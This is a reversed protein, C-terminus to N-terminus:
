LAEGRLPLPAPGGERTPRENRIEAPLQIRFTTGQGLSSEFTLRGGHGEVIAKTIALGLGMGPIGDANSSRFFRDFLLQQDGEPIGLGSDAVEIEVGDPQELVRVTVTGGEETFKIANSVLNDIAQGMRDPDADVHSAQDTQDVLLVGKAAARPRLADLSTQAVNQLDTACTELQFAGAEVQAVFLLDSVLRLLRTANRDVVGLRKRMVAPVLEEGDLILDVYGIISTLPTRLEHSVLAFFQDKMRQAELESERTVLAASIQEGLAGVMELMEGSRRRRLPSFFELVALTADGNRVPIALASHLGERAAAARRPFQHDISVDEIWLAEGSAWASGPLGEGLRPRHSRSEATFIELHHDPTQWTADCSLTDGGASPRWLAGFTWEMASGVAEVVAALSEDLSAGEALVRDIAHQAHLFHETRRRESIDHLFATFAVRESGDVRSITLEVPFERGARDVAALEIRNNIVGSKRPDGGGAM